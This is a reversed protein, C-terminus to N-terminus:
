CLGESNGTKLPAYDGGRNLLTWKITPCITGWFWEISIILWNISAIKLPKFRNSPEVLCNASYEPLIAPVYPFVYPLVIIIPQSQVDPKKFRDWQNTTDLNTKPKVDQTINTFSYYVACQSMQSYKPSKHSPKNFNIITKGANYEVKTRILIGASGFDAHHTSIRWPNTQAHLTSGLFSKLLSCPLSNSKVPVDNKFFGLHAHSPTVSSPWESVLHNKRTVLKNIFGM